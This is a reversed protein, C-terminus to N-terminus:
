QGPVLEWLARTGDVAFVSPTGAGDRRVAVADQSVASFDLRTWAAWAASPDATLATRRFPLNQATRVFLQRRGNQALVATPNGAAGGSPAGLPLEGSGSTASPANQWRAALTNDPARYVVVLRGDPLQTLAPDGVPRGGIQSWAGWDSSSGRGLQSRVWLGGNGV